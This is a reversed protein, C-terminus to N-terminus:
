RSKSLILNQFIYSSKRRRRRRRPIFTALPAQVSIPFVLLILLNPSYINIDDIFKTFILHEVAIWTSVDPTFDFIYMQPHFPPGSGPDCSDITVQLYCIFHSFICM